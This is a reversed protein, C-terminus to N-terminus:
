GLFIQSSLKESSMNLLPDLLLLIKGKYILVSAAVNEVDSLAAIHLPTFKYYTTPIDRLHPSISLFHVLSEVHCYTALHIVTAESIWSSNSSLNWEKWEEPIVCKIEETLLKELDSQSKKSALSTIFKVQDLDRIIVAAQLLSINAKIKTSKEFSGKVMSVKIQVSYKWDTLAKDNEKLTQRLEALSRKSKMSDREDGYQFTPNIELYNELFHAAEENTDDARRIIPVPSIVLTEFLNDDPLIM